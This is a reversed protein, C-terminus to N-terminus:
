ASKTYKKGFFKAQLFWIGKKIWNIKEAYIVPVERIVVGEDRKKALWVNFLLESVRGFLRAQFADLSKYEVVGELDTLIDFLWQCYEDFLQKKMINMNYMCGHTQSYVQDVYPLYEPYKDAIIERAADLHSSDHSHGYHSYLTEIYYRNQRPVIIDASEMLMSAEDDNLIGRYFDKGAQRKRLTFFRRYHCLGVADADINKWIYYIGTLECFYPNLQSINEGADDRLLNGEIDGRGCEAYSISSKGAAGVQIPYYCSNEPLQCPKHAAVFIKIIM